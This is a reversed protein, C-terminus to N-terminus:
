ARYYIVTNGSKAIEIPTVIPDITVYDVDIGQSKWAKWVLQSCYFADDRWPNIFWWNYSKGVQNEAYSAANAYNSSSAGKVSLAYVNTRGRWDNTHKQVGDAPFSEVTLASVNSVIGAHGPYGFDIGWFSANFAILIDGYTGLNNSLLSVSSIHDPKIGKVTGLSSGQRALKILRQDSEYKKDM